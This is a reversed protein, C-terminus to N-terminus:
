CTQLADMVAKEWPLLEDQEIADIRDRNGSKLDKIGAEFLSWPLVRHVPETDNETATRNVSDPDLAFQGQRTRILEVVHASSGVAAGLDHVITRVYTGSSVSMQLEFAPPREATFMILAVETSAAPHGGDAKPSNGDSGNQREEAQETPQVPKEAQNSAAADILSELRQMNSKDEESLEAAPPSWSHETAEQWKLLQLDYITVDRAEIPRPLPTNSRAYDYLPKGDMKLASYSYHPM